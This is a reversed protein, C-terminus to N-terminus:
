CAGRRGPRAPHGDESASKGTEDFGPRRFSRANPFRAETDVRLKSLHTVLPRVLDGESRRHRHLTHWAVLSRDMSLLAVKASGNVDSPEGGGGSMARALKAPILARDWLVVSVADSLESGDAAVGVPRSRAQLPVLRSVRHNGLWDLRDHMWSDVMATYVHGALVLPEFRGTRTIRGADTPSTPPTVYHAALGDVSGYRRVRGMRLLRWAAPVRTRLNHMLSSPGEECSRGSQRTRETEAFLLCQGTYPCKGCWRDCFNYIGAIFRSRRTGMAGYM